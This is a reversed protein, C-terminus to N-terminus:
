SGDPKNSGEHCNAREWYSLLSIDVTLTTYLPWARDLLPLWAQRWGRSVQGEWCNILIKGFSREKSEKTKPGADTSRASSWKESSPFNSANVSSFASTKPLAAMKPTPSATRTTSYLIKWASKLPLVIWIIRSAEREKRSYVAAGNPWLWPQMMEAPSCWLMYYNSLPIDIEKIYNHQPEASIQLNQM